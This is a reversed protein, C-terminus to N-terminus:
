KIYNQKIWEHIDEIKTQIGEPILRKLIDFTQKDLQSVPKKLKSEEYKRAYFAVIDTLQLAFSKKSDVFFGKEILNTTKLLSNPDLRLTKLSKEAENFSEKQEDFILMGLEAPNKQKLYNDIEMCVFPLAMVYPNIKIGPGYQKECFEGFKSKIIRRYIIPIKYNLLLEFMKDRIALRNEMSLGKFHNAGSRLHVAKLEFDEPLEKEFHEKLIDYFEKEMAFWKSSHVIISVLVFIPQQNDKLNLGTNGTDDIYVLNM